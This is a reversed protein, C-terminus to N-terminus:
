PKIFNFTMNMEADIRTENSWVCIVTIFVSKEPQHM